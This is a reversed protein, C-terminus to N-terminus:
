PANPDEGHRRHVEDIAVDLENWMREISSRLRMNQYAGWVVMAPLAVLISVILSYVIAIIAVVGFQQFVGLPSLILTGFGVVTTLASGLLASGTTALTRVAAKEPNRLRTFEERYRHIIHITYDVGIGISLATIISTVFTYPIDLLAMTGLASFLVLAIPGVAIIGLAPQRLTAWFFASLAILAAAFTVSISETQGDKIADMVAVALVSDSTATIARDAGRWLDEVESQIMRAGALNDTYIQFQLLMTDVGSPDNVLFGALDPEREILKDVFEQMLAPDLEVGSSAKAFLDALAADYKDGPEGSDSTWDYVLADFSDRIPGTAAGPRRAEDDFAATLDRLNLLTRIDTLETKVVLNVIETPGGIATELTDIDRVASGDKPLIDKISFESELGRSAFGLAVAIAIVAVIFPMPWRTVTAGIREAAGEIGPLARSIPRPPTLTGRADRRRDVIVRVAPILTLMVILSMGVGLAAAVGFDGVIDMPSFLTALFGVITTVAALALPVSVDRLGNRAAVAAAEGEGRRERYHSIAQIAYDVTLSIIIVPVTTTLINPPGILGLANPGLWGQAGTAWVISMVLGGLTLAADAISRTFLLLLGAILLLALGVMSALSLSNENSEDQIITSSLSSASLPGEDGGALESIKREADAVRDDGTNKLRVIAIAVPSGDADVGTMADLAAGIEPANRVADIRAQTLSGFDDTGLAAGVLSSPAAIPRVPALLEAVGPAAAIEDLLADMQALGSPTLADGRFILTAIVVEGSDGFTESVERTAEVVPADPPLYALDTGATQPAQLAAGAGLFVTVAILVAITVYPRATVLRSFRDLM